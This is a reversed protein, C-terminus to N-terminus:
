NASLSRRGARYHIRHTHAVRCHKDHGAMASKQPTPSKQPIYIARTRIYLARKRFHSRGFNKKANGGCVCVDREKYM